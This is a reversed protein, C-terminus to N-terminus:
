PPPPPPRPPPPPPPPPPPHPDPEPPSPLAREHHLAPGLRRRALPGGGVDRADGAVVEPGHAHAHQLSADEVLVVAHVRRRHGHHVLREHAAVERPLAREAPPDLEAAVVVLVLRPELDHADDGM